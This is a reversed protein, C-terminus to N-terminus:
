GVVYVEMGEKDALRGAIELISLINANKEGELMERINTM